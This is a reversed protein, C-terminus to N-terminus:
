RICDEYKGDRLLTYVAQTKNGEGVVRAGGHANQAVSQAITAM